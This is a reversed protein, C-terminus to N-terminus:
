AVVLAQVSSLSLQTRLWALQTRTQDHCTRATVLLDSDRVGQASRDVLLWGLDCEAVMLYLDQLDRLLGVGPGRPGRFAATPDAAPGERGPPPYVELYPALALAQEDAQRALRRCTYFIDVEDRHAGAVARYGGSLNLQARRLLELYHGL